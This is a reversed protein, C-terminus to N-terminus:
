ASRRQRALERLRALRRTFDVSETGVVSAIQARIQDALQVVRAKAPAILAQAWARVDLVVRYLRVFWQMELLKDRCIDFLFSMVGLALTKALFITVLGSLVHGHAVLSLALIKLPLVAIAPVVFIALTMPPSLRAVVGILWPEIREVGLTRGLARLWEKVNDWLWSEFLFLVALTFWFARKLRRTVQEM